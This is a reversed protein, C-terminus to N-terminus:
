RTTKWTNEQELQVEIERKVLAFAIELNNALSYLKNNEWNKYAAVDDKDKISPPVFQPMQVFAKEAGDLCIKLGRQTGGYQVPIVEIRM